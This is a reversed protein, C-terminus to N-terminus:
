GLLPGPSRSALHAGLRELLVTLPLVEQREGERLAVSVSAAERQGVVLVLPVKGEGASRVRGPLPGSDDLSVRVGAEGLRSQVEEAWPLVSPNVPLVVAQVPSLWLPLLGGREELLFSLMREMTSVVSRHLMVPRRSTGDRDAYELGFREPLHFDLQVTSLTEERGTHGEMQVDVKPGYFAAEGRAEEFSVGAEVLASRLAAESREWLDDDAVYKAGEGRLSLRVRGRKLGLVRYADEVMSLISSVESAVQDERLFVHGDNLTMCRVRSLGGVSGSPESRFMQGLEAVRFPLDRHTRRTHRYVLVHHPCNMPRLVTEEGGLLMPPFMADAYHEWHGSVEYLERKALPPTYVHQYGARREAQLVYEELERRVVAGSPLWIPLGAGLEESSRFM